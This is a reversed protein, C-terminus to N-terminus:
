KDAGDRDDRAPAHRRLVPAPLQRLDRDARSYRSRGTTGARARPGRGTFRTPSVATAGDVAQLDIIIDGTEAASNAHIHAPHSNGSTTGDLDITIVTADDSREEFKVTGSIAPNSVSALNYTKSQGTLQPENIDGDDDDDCSMMFVSGIIILSLLRSLIQINRKM